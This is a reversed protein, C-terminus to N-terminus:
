FLITLILCPIIVLQPIHHKRADRAEWSGVFMDFALYHVWGALLLWENSFLAQVGALSGFGGEAVGWHTVLLATYLASLLLPLIAATLVSHVWRHRGMIILVLWGGLAIINAISFVTEANM